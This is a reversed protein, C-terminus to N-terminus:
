KIDKEGLCLTRKGNIIITNDNIPSWLVNHSLVKLKAFEQTQPSDLTALNINFIDIVKQYKESPIKIKEGNECSIPSKPIRTIIMEHRVINLEHFGATKSYEEYTIIDAGNLKTTAMIIAFFVISLFFWNKKLKQFKSLNNNEEKEKEDMLQILQTDTLNIYDLNSKKIEDSINTKM